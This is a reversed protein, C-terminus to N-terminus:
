FLSPRVARRDRTASSSPQSPRTSIWRAVMLAIVGLELLTPRFAWPEGLALVPLHLEDPDTLPWGSWGSFAVGSWQIAEVADDVLDGLLHLAVGTLVATIAHPLRPGRLRLAATTLMIAVWLLASHGVSRGHPTAGLWQLSKDVLDPLLAGTVIWLM